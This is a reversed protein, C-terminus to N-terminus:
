AKRHATEPPNSHTVATSGDRGAGQQQWLPLTPQGTLQTAVSTCLGELVGLEPLWAHIALRRWRAAVGDARGRQKLPQLAAYSVLTSGAPCDTASLVTRCGMVSEAALLTAVWQPLKVAM